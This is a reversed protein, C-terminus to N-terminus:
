IPRTMLMDYYKIGEREKWIKRIKKFGLKTYIKVAYLSSHVLLQKHGYKKAYKFIKDFLKKGIGMGQFNPDVFFVIIENDKIDIVGVLKNVVMEVAVFFIGDKSKIIIDNKRNRRCQAAILEPSYYSKLTIRNARRILNAVSAADIKRFKRIKIKM